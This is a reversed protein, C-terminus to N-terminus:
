IEARSDDRRAGVHVIIRYVYSEEYIFDKRARWNEVKSNPFKHDDLKSFSFM